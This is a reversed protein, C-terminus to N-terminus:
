FHPIYNSWQVDDYVGIPMYRMSLFVETILYLRALGHLLSCISFVSPRLCEMSDVFEKFGYFLRFKKWVFAQLCVM